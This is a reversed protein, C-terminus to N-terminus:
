SAGIMNAITVARYGDPVGQTFIVEGVCNDTRFSLIDQYGPSAYWSRATNMDPFELVVLLSGHWAGEVEEVPGGHVLFRGGFADLTDDIRRAYEAIGSNMELDRLTAIVYASM